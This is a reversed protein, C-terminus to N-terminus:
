ASYICGDWFITAFNQKNQHKVAWDVDIDHRSRGLVLGAHGHCYIVVITSHLLWLIVTM